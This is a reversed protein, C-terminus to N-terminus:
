DCLVKGIHPLASQEAQKLHIIFACQQDGWYARFETEPQNLSDIYSEGDRGVYFRQPHDPQRIVAGEPVPNLPDQMLRFQLAHGGRMPIDLYLGMGLAPKLQFTTEELQIDLPLDLPNISLQNDEYPRLNPLLALGRADSLAVKRNHLYIPVNPISQLDVLAYSDGLQRSVFWHSATDGSVRGVAGQAGLQVSSDGNYNQM